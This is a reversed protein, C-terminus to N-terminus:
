VKQGDTKIFRNVEDEVEQKQLWFQRSYINKSKWNKLALHTPRYAHMDKASESQFYLDDDTNVLGIYRGEQNKITLDAFPFERIASYGEIAEQTWAQLRNVL